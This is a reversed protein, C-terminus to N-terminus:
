GLAGGPLVWDASEDGLENALMRLRNHFEERGVQFLRLHRRGNFGERAHLVRHNDLIVAEGTALTFRAQYHKDNLRSVLERNAAYLPEM